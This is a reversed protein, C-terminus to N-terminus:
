DSGLLELAAKCAAIGRQAAAANRGAAAQTQFAALAARYAARAASENGLRIQCQAIGQQAEGALSSDGALAERYADWAESYRGAGQLNRGRALAGGGGASGSIPTPRPAVAVGSVAPGGVTIHIYGPDSAAQGSGASSADGGTPAGVTIRRGSGFGNRDASETAGFVGTRPQRYESPPVAIIPPLTRTALRSDADSVGGGDFGVARSSRAPGRFPAIGAIMARAPEPASVADGVRVFPDERALDPASSVRSTTPPSSATYFATTRGGVPLPDLAVSGVRSDTTPAPASGRGIIPTRNRTVTAWAVALVCAAVSGGLAFPLYNPRIRSLTKDDTRAMRRLNLGRIPLTAPGETAGDEARRLQELKYRDAPSEPNIAVVREMTETAKERNGNHEYLNALLALSSTSNPLLLVAEEALPLAQDFRKQEALTFAASLLGAVRESVREGRALVAEEVALAGEPAALTAGCERCFKSGIANRHKCITCIM